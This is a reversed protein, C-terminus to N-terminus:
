QKKWRTGSPTDELIIGQGLLQDRIQDSTKFDKKRRAENRQEILAEIEQNINTEPFSAIAFVQDMNRVTSEIQPADLAGIEKKDALKNLRYIMEFQAGLAGSINLDDDLSDEFTKKATDLISKVETSSGESFSDQKLRYLFDKLRLLAGKAQILTDDSFNLQKRYHVSMLMYRLVLPDHGEELLERVTLFNGKSKAMKEGEVQLHASHLWYRVFPM